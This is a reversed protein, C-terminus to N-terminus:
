RLRETADHLKQARLLAQGLRERLAAEDDCAGINLYGGARLLYHANQPRRALGGEREDEIECSRDVLHLLSDLDAFSLRRSTRRGGLRSAPANCPASDLRKRRRLEVKRALARAQHFCVM